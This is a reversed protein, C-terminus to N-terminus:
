SKLFPLVLHHGEVVPILSFRRLAAGLIDLPTKFYKLWGLIAILGM